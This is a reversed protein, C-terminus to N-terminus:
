VQFHCIRILLYICSKKLIIEPSGRVETITARYLIVTNSYDALVPQGVFPAAIPTKNAAHATMQRFLADLAEESKAPVVHTLLFTMM